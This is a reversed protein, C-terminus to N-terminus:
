RDTHVELQKEFILVLLCLVSDNNTHLNNNSNNSEGESQGARSRTALRM